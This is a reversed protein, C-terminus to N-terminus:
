QAHVATDAGTDLLAKAIAAHGKMAAAMLPTFGQKDVSETDAGADLLAKATATHGKTAARM